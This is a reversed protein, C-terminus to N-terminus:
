TIFLLYTYWEQTKFGRKTGTHISKIPNCNPKAKSLGKFSHRGFHVETLLPQMDAFTLSLSSDMNNKTSTQIGIAHYNTAIIDECQQNLNYKRSEDNALETEREDEKKKLFAKLIQREKRQTDSSLVKARQCNEKSINFDRSVINGLSDRDQDINLGDFSSEQIRGNMYTEKYFERIIKEGDNLYHDNGISGRYTGLMSKINPIVQNEVDIMGNDRFASQINSSTFATAMAIPLKSLGVTLAVKKHKPLIVVRDNSPDSIDELDDLLSSIRYFIPSNESNTTHMKKVCGKVVKFM